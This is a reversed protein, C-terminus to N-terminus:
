TGYNVGALLFFLKGLGKWVQALDVDQYPSEQQYLRYLVEGTIGLELWVPVNTRTETRLISLTDAADPQPVLLWDKEDESHMIFQEPTGVVDRWSQGRVAQVSALTAPELSGYRGSFIDLIRITGANATYTPDGATVSISDDDTLVDLFGLERVVMDYFVGAQTADADSLSLNDILTLVLARSM